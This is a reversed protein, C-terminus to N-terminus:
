CKLMEKHFLYWKSGKETWDQLDASKEVDNKHALIYSIERMEHMPLYRLSKLADIVSRQWTREDLERTLVMNFFRFELVAWRSLFPSALPFTVTAPSITTYSAAKQQLISKSLVISPFHCLSVQFCLSHHPALHTTIEGFNPSQKWVSKLAKSSYDFSFHSDKCQEEWREM